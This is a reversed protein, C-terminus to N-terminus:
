PDSFPPGRPRALLGVVIVRVRGDGADNVGVAMAGAEIVGPAGRVETVTVGPGAASDATVAAESGGTGLKGALAEGVAMRDKCFPTPSGGLFKWARSGCPLYGNVNGRSFIQMLFLQSTQTQYRAKYTSILSFTAYNV